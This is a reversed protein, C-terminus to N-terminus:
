IDNTKKLIIAQHQNIGTHQHTHVIEYNLAKANDEYFRLWEDPHKINIHANTFNGEMTWQDALSDECANEYFIYKKSVRIAEKLCDEEWVEPIHEMGDLHCVLDFTNDDFMHMNNANGVFIELSPFKGKAFDVFADSIDIGYVDAGHMSFWTMVGGPGSGIDLVKFGDKQKLESLINLFGVSVEGLGETMRQIQKTRAFDEGYDKQTVLFNYKETEYKELSQSQGWWLTDGSGVIDKNM